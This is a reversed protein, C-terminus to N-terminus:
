AVGIFDVDLCTEKRFEKHGRGKSMKKKRAASWRIVFCCGIFLNILLLPPLGSIFWKKM